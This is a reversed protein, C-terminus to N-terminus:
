AAAVLKRGLKSGQFLSVFAGPLWEFDVEIEEKTILKKAPHEEHQPHWSTSQLCTTTLPRVVFSSGSMIVCTNEPIGILM